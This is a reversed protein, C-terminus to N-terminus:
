ELEKIHHAREIARAFDIRDSREFDDSPLAYYLAWIEEESLPKRQPPATYLPVDDERTKHRWITGGVAMWAYPEKVPEALGCACVACLRARECTEGCQNTPTERLASRLATIVDMLGGYHYIAEDGSYYELAELAQQCAQRLSNM